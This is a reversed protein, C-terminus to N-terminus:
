GNSSCKSTGASETSNQTPDEARQCTRFVCRRSAQLEESSADARDECRLIAPLPYQREATRDTESQEPKHVDKPVDACSQWRPSTHDEDM